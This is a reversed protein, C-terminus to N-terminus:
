ANEAKDCVNRLALKIRHLDDMIVEIEADTMTTAYDQIAEIEKTILSTRAQFQKRTATM